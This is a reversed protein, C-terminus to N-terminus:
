AISELGGFSFQRHEAFCTFLEAILVVILFMVVRFMVVRFMVVRFMVVRFMVFSAFVHFAVLCCTAFFHIPLASPGSQFLDSLPELPLRLVLALVVRSLRFSADLLRVDNARFKRAFTLTKFNPM